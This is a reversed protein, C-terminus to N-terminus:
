VAYQSGFHNKMDYDTAIDKTLNSSLDIVSHVSQCDDFGIVPM